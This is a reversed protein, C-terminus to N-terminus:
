YLDLDHASVVRGRYNKRVDKLLAKDTTGRILQHYLVLLKPKAQAAIQALETSSTHFERLYEMWGPEPRNADVLSYVEHLLVDCGHCADVLAPSPACDGSIVISRDPTDIRYGFAQPWSGHHVAFATVKLDGERYVVGAEVDHATVQYGTTNAHELGHVRVDIDQEWAAEIYGAMATTGKPGYLDLPEKRGLVWPSFILDPLGLTHDSHLHTLFVRNLRPAQLAPIKLRGAAAAARRVVGPGSDFLYARGNYIVAVAPGSRDPEARPTGTGLIVVQTAALAGVCALPLMFWLKLM